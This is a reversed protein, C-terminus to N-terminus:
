EVEYINYTTQAIPELESTFQYFRVDYSGKEWGDNPQFSVWNQQSDAVIDKKDFLLVQGTENNVWKVFVHPSKAVQGNTDLHAYITAYKDVKNTSESTEPMSSNFGIKVTGKLQENSNTQYLEEIAREAFRRKDAILNSTDKAMFKDVYQNLMFDPMNDLLQKAEKPSYDNLNVSPQNDGKNGNLAQTLSKEQKDGTQSFVNNAMPEANYKEANKTQVHNSKAQLLNDMQQKSMSLYTVLVGFLFAVIVSSLYFIKNKM